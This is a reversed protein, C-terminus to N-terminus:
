ALPQAQAIWADVGVAGVAGVLFQVQAGIGRNNINAAREDADNHADDEDAGDNVECSAELSYIECVFEDLEDQTVVGRAILDNMVQEIDNGYVM